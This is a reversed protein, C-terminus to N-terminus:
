VIKGYLLLKEIENVSGFGFNSEVMVSFKGGPHLNLLQNCGETMSKLRSSVQQRSADIGCSLFSKVIMSTTFKKPVKKFHEIFTERKIEERM